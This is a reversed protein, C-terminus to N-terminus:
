LTVYTMLKAKEGLCLDKEFIYNRLCYIYNMTRKRRGTCFFFTIIPIFKSLSNFWHAFQIHQWTIYFGAQTHPSGVWWWAVSCHLQGFLSTQSLAYFMWKIIWESPELITWLEIEKKNTHARQWRCVPWGHAWPGIEVQKWKKCQLTRRVKWGFNFYVHGDLPKLTKVYKTKEPHM